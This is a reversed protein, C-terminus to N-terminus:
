RDFYRTIVVEYGDEMWRCQPFLYQFDNANTWCAYDYSSTRIFSHHRWRAVYKEMPAYGSPISKWFSTKHKMSSVIPM